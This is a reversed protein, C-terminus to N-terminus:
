WPQMFWIDYADSHSLKGKFDGLEGVAVDQLVGISELSPCRELFAPDFKAHSSVTVFKLEPFTLESAVSFAEWNDIALSWLRPHGLMVQYGTESLNVDRIDLILYGFEVDTDWSDSVVGDVVTSGRVSLADASPASLFLLIQGLSVRCHELSLMRVGQFLGFDVETFDAGSIRFGALRDPFAFDGVPGRSGDLNLSVLTEASSVWDVLSRDFSSDIVRIDTLTQCGRISVVGEGGDSIELRKLDPFDPVELTTWDGGRIILCELSVLSTLQELIKTDVECDVMALRRPNARRCRSLLESGTLNELSMEAIEVDRDSCGVALMAFLCISYVLKVLMPSLVRESVM